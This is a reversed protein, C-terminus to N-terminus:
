APQAQKAAHQAIILGYVLGQGITAGAGPYSHGFVNAANNGQAYLGGIASGDERLVQGYEDAVLGGCTGLDSLVVKVAYFPAETLPRLNPNPTVTPDGYYRDYASKGRGFDEDEGAGALVNFRQYTASLQDAPVGIAGALESISRAKHAIGAAYWEDPFDMRPFVSGAFVYSNRYKQDAILWMTGVPDGAKERGLVIQGYTMYDTSENLFRRGHSDVIFSGPLSREALMISPPQGEALPAAAPFWWSQDMNDIAAGLDRAMSLTDGTNGPSGLSLSGDISPSQYDQRYDANHDFGGTALVVGKRTRVLAEEDGQRLVAGVVRDNEVELRVLSTETWVPIGAKLVGAYMGAAIAQGGAAYERKLAMGGLGQAVRKIIKPFATLPKRVMLNMWKYDMGTVPMPVPAEMTAPRFRPRDAGLDTLDFPKAECSRGAANGGPQEPHYDSYGKSWFFTLPTTRELMRVTESGHDLFARWRPEPSSGAVVSEVYKAGREPTDIAGDRELVPNAPIWFAGGSRATSGGVYETKEVVAVSLGAEHAALATALGTGSGVVLLDVTSPSIPRPAPVQQSM